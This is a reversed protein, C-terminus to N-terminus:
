DVPLSASLRSSIFAAVLTATDVEYRARFLFFNLGTRNRFVQARVVIDSDHSLKALSPAPSRDNQAVGSRGYFSSDDALRALVLEPAMPNCAVRIRVDRDRDQAVKALVDQNLTNLAM